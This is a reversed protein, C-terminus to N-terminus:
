AEMVYASLVRKGLHFILLADDWFSNLCIFYIFLYM